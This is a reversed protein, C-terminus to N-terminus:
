RLLAVRCGSSLCERLRDNLENGRAVTMETAHDVSVYKFGDREIVSSADRNKIWTRQLTRLTNKASGPLAAMLKGYVTNLDKDAQVFVKQYCYVADFDTLDGECKNQAQSM